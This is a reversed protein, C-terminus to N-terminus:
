LNRSPNQERATRLSNPIELRNAVDEAISDGFMRKLLFVGLAISSTVGAATIINGDCVVRDTVVECYESLAEQASSHTTAIKGTLLGSAGLVLAGTCVSCIMGRGTFDHLKSLFSRDEMLPKVGKGGPIIMLDYSDFDIETRHPKVILGNACKIPDQTAIIDVEFPTELSILDQSSMRLAGALVEYVGVFDLEEVDTFIIIGVRKIKM